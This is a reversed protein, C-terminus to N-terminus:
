TEPFQFRDQVVHYWQGGVLVWPDMMIISDNNGAKISFQILVFRESQFHNKSIEIGKMDERWSKVYTEYRPFSVMEKFHPAELKFAEDANRSFRHKWYIVFQKKLQKDAWFKDESIGDAKYDIKIRDKGICGSTGFVIITFFIAM